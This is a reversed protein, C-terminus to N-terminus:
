FSWAAGFFLAPQTPLQVFERQGSVTITAQELFVSRAGAYLALNEGILFRADAGVYPGQNAVEVPFGRVRGERKVVAMGFAAQLQLPEFVNLRGIIETFLTSGSVSASVDLSPIFVNRDTLLFSIGLGPNFVDNEGLLFFRGGFAFQGSLGLGGQLGANITFAGEEDSADDQAMAGVTLFFVGCVLFVALCWRKM